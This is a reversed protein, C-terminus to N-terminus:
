GRGRAKKVVQIIAKSRSPSFYSDGTYVAAILHSGAKLARTSFRATGDELEAVGITTSGEIFSVMGQPMPAGVAEPKIKATFTVKQKRHSRSSSSMLSLLSRHGILAVATATSSRTGDPRPEIVVPLESEMDPHIVITTNGNVPPSSFFTPLYGSGPPPAVIGKERFTGNDFVVLSFRGHEDAFGHLERSRLETTTYGGLNASSLLESLDAGAWAIPLGAKDVVEVTVVVTPPLTIDRAEDGAVTFQATELAWDGPPLGPLAAAVYTSLRYNGPVLSLAYSGDAGTEAVVTPGSASHNEARLTVGPVPDGSADRMTGTVLDAVPPHVVITSDGEVAPSSFRTFGYGSGPSPTFSGDETFHGHDFVVLSLRGHEDTVGTLERSRLEATAYGGLDTPVPSILEALDVAADPIPAGGSGLAEVTVTATPPLTLDRTEDGAVTFQATQLAWGHPLGAIAEGVFISVTYKGPALSLSYSGDTATEAEIAPGPTSHNEARLTVGPVPGGSHGRVTGTVAAAAAGSVPALVLTLGLLAAAVLVLYTGRAPVATYAPRVESLRPSKQAM